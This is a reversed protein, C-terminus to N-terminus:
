GSRHGILGAATWGKRCLAGQNVPFEEWPEVEPRAAARGAADRVAALLLPLPDRRRRSRDTM